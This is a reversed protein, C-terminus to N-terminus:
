FHFTEHIHLTFLFDNLKTAPGINFKSRWYRHIQQDYKLQKCYYYTGVLLLYISLNKTTCLNESILMLVFVCKYKRRYLTPNILIIPILSLFSSYTGVNYNQSQMSYTLFLRCHFQISHPAFDEFWINLDRLSEFPAYKLPRAKSFPCNVIYYHWRLFYYEVASIRKTLAQTQVAKSNVTM